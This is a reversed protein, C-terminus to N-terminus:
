LREMSAFCPYLGNSGRLRIRVFPYGYVLYPYVTFQRVVLPQPSGVGGINPYYKNELIKTSITDINQEIYYYTGAIANYRFGLTVRYPQNLSAPFAIDLIRGNINGCKTYLFTDVGPFSASDGLTTAPGQENIGGRKSLMDNKSHLSEAMYTWIRGRHDVNYEPDNTGNSGMNYGTWDPKIEWHFRRYPTTATATNYLYIDVNKQDITTNNSWINRTFWFEKGNSMTVRAKTSQDYDTEIYQNAPNIQSFLMNVYASEIQNDAAIKVSRGIGSSAVMLSTLGIGVIAMTVIAEVLSVGTFHSLYNGSRHILFLHRRCPQKSSCGPLPKRNKLGVRAWKM